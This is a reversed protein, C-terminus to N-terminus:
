HISKLMRGEDDNPRTNAMNGNTPDPYPSQPSPTTIEPLHSKKYQTKLVHIRKKDINEKHAM